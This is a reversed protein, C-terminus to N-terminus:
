DAFSFSQHSSSSRSTLNGKIEQKMYKIIKDIVAIDHTKRTDNLKSNSNLVVLSIDFNAIMVSEDHRQKLYYEGRRIIKNTILYPSKNLNMMFESDFWAPLFAIIYLEHNSSECTALIDLLKTTTQNMFLPLYPPNFLAGHIKESILLEPTISFFNGISGFQKDTDIFLSCYRPITYNLPSAFMELSINFDPKMLTYIDNGISWQQGSNDFTAYRMIMKFLACPTNDQSELMKYREKSLYKYYDQYYLIVHESYIKIKCQPQTKTISTNFQNNAIIFITEIHKIQYDSLLIGKEHYESIMKKFLVHEQIKDFKNFLLYKCLIEINIGSNNIGDNIIGLVFREIINKHEYHLRKNSINLFFSIKKIISYYIKQRNYERTILEM